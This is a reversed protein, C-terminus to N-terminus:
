STSAIVLCSIKCRRRGRSVISRSTLTGGFRSCGCRSPGHSAQSRSISAMGVELHQLSTPWMVGELPQNFADGIVLHRLSRPLAVGDIPHNFDGLFELQQLSEPWRVGEIPHNFGRGFELRQLSTPWTVDNIPQNFGLGFTLERLSPPWRVDEIPQDFIGRLLLQRLSAPWVVGVIPQNFHSEVGFEMKSLRRPWAPVELSSNFDDRLCLEEVDLTDPLRSMFDASPLEWTVRRARLRPIQLSDLEDHNSHADDGASLLTAMSDGNVRLHVAHAGRCAECLQLSALQLEPTMTYWQRASSAQNIAVVLADLCRSAVPGTPLLHAIIRACSRWSIETPTRFVKNLRATFPLVCLLRADGAGTTCFISLRTM